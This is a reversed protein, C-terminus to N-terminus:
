IGVDNNNNSVELLQGRGEEVMARQDHGEHTVHHSGYGFRLTV